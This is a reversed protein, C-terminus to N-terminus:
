SSKGFFTMWTTVVLAHAVMAARISGSRRFALGYFVGALGAILAFRYNPFGRFGLHAAGFLLSTLLLALNAHGTMAELTQQLLGRFFFEESLALVWLVGLFTALATIGIQWAPQAPLQFQLFGSSLSLAIGPVAFLLFQRSGEVWHERKPWFGFGTNGIGRFYLLATIGLRIWMLRGLVDVRLRPVVAPYLTPLIRLLYVAAVASLLLLDAWARRPFLQYWLVPVLALLLLSPLHSLQVAGRALECFLWPLAVSALLWPAARLPSMTSMRRRFWDANLSFYLFAELLFALLLLLLSALPLAQLAPILGM